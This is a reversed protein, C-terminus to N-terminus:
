KTVMERIKMSIGKLPWRSLIEQFFFRFVQKLSPSVAVEYNNKSVFMVQDGLYSLPIMREYESQLVLDYRRYLSFYTGYRRFRSKPLGIFSSRPFRFIEVSGPASLFDIELEPRERVARVLIEQLGTDYLNVCWPILVRKIAPDMFPLDALPLDRHSAMPSLEIAKKGQIGAKFDDIGQLIVRALSQRGLLRYYFARKLSTSVARELVSEDHEGHRNLVDLANRTDYYLIWTPVKAAASEHWILSRCSALVRHGMRAIRLCWEVDDFHIFYDDWIGAKKAVDARILLSAAAVYDVDIFSKFDPIFDALDWPADLLEDMALGKWREVTEGHFNLFLDGSRPNYFAGIENIRWPYDLQIMSSGAIAADHTNELLTVLEILAYRNVQVDNDLLWLYDYAADPQDFAWELGTNFGGTGGLNEENRVITVNPFSSYVAEVTGDSSANDVLLTDFAESDYEISALSALLNLIHHKKNWTVIIILISPLKKTM